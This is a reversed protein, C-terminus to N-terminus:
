SEVWRAVLDGYGVWSRYEALESSVGSISTALAAKEAPELDILRTLFTRILFVIHDAGLATLTQREVRLWLDEARPRGINSGASSDLHCLEDDAVLTWNFREWIARPLDHEAPQQAIRDFAARSAAAIRPYGPVPDHIGDLSRGLKDKPSWHSPFAVCVATLRWGQDTASMVCIDESISEGVTRLQAEVSVDSGDTPAEGPPGSEARVARNLMWATSQAHAEYGPLVGILEHRRIDFLDVKRERQYPTDPGTLLWKDTPRLSM